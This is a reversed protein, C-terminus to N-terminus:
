LGSSKMRGIRRKLTKQNEELSIPWNKTFIKNTKKEARFSSSLSKFFSFDDCRFCKAQVQKTLRNLAAEKLQSVPVRVLKTM